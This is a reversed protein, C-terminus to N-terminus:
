WDVRRLMRGSLSLYRPRHAADRGCFQIPGRVALMPELFWDDDIAKFHGAPFINLVDQTSTTEVVLEGNGATVVARTGVDRYEGTYREFDVEHPPEPLAPDPPPPIGLVSEYCHTVFLNTFIIGALSNTLISVIFDHEPLVSLQSMQGITGGSHEFMRQGSWERLHWGLGMAQVDATPSPKRHQMQQMAAVSEASLIAGGGALHARAFTVLETATASMMVGAPTAARGNWAWSPAVRPTLDEFSQLHGSAVRSVLAEDPRATMHTLGLPDLVRERLVVDFQEHRVREVLHGLVVFGANCYSFYAGPPFLQPLAASGEVYRQIADDGFGFAAFYDGDLGSTHSLLHRVTCKDFRSAFAPVHREVPDDLAVLGEEVLQMVLTATFLKTISGIQFLSDTTADVATDVNLQGFAFTRVDAGDDIAISVAPVPLTELLSEVAQQLSTATADDMGSTLCRRRIVAVPM